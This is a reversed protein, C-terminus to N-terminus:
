VSAVGVSGGVAWRYYGWGAAATFLPWRGALFWCVCLFVGLVLAVWGGDWVVGVGLIGCVGVAVVLSGCWSKWVLVSVPVSVWVCVRGCGTRCVGVAVGARAFVSVGGGCGAGTSLSAFVFVTM